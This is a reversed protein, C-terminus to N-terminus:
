GGDAGSLDDDRADLATAAGVSAALLLMEAHAAVISCSIIRLHHTHFSRTATRALGYKTGDRHGDTNALKHLARMQLVASPAMGGLSEHILETTTHGNAAASAYLGPRPRVHGDGTSHDHPPDSPHGREKTGFIDVRLKEECGGFAIRHGESTSVSGGGAATGRGPVVSAAFHSVKTERLHHHGSPSAHVAIIDPVTGANIHAYRARAQARTVRRGDGKDGKLVRRVAVASIADYWADNASNHRATANGGCAQSDGLRDAQTVADGRRSHADLTPALCSQLLGLRSQGSSLFVPSRITSARVSRDPLTLLWCGSGHQSASILRRAERHPTCAGANGADFEHCADLADHWAQCAGVYSLSKQAFTAIPSEDDATLQQLDPLAYTARMPPHFEAREQGDIYVHLSDDLERHRQQVDALTSRLEAYSAQFAATSPSAPAPSADALSVAALPPFVRSLNRRTAFVSAVFAAHRTRHHCALSFGGLNAPLSLFLEALTAREPDLKGTADFDFLM